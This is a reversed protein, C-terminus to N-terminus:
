DIFSKLIKEDNLASAVGLTGAGICFVSGMGAFRASNNKNSLWAISCLLLGVLTTYFCIKSTPYEAIFKKIIRLTDDYNKNCTQIIELSKDTVQKTASTTVMSQQFEKTTNTHTINSIIQTLDKASKSL